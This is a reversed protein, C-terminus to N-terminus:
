RGFKRVRAIDARSLLKGGSWYGYCTWGSFQGAELSRAPLTPQLSPPIIARVEGRSAGDARRTAGENGAAAADAKPTRSDVKLSRQPGKRSVFGANDALMHSLAVFDGDSLIRPGQEADTSLLKNGNM